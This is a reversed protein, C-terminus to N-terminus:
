PLFNKMLYLGSCHETIERGPFGMSFSQYGEKRAHGGSQLDILVKEIVFEPTSLLAVAPAAAHLDLTIGRANQGAHAM